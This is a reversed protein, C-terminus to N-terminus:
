THGGYCFYWIAFDAVCMDEMIPRTQVFPTWTSQLTVRHWTTQNEFQDYSMICGLYTARKQVPIQLDPCDPIQVTLTLVDKDMRLFQKRLQKSKTGHMTVLAISKRPNVHLGLDHLAKFLFGFFQLIRQFEAESHFIGCAHIDDAYINLCQCIWTLPFFQHLDHLCLAMMCNWLLPAAKCGQRLGKSTQVPFSEGGHTVHYRTDRHWEHLLHIINSHIGLEHLRAFLTLRDISDFAHELDIFLQVGGFFDESPRQQARSHPTSRSHLVLDRVLRCHQAAKTVSDQTTRHPIYAWLPWSILAPMAQTLAKRALIGVISKGIPEQLCLPRLNSPRVPAKRPKPILYLWGDKWCNPIIPPSCSWWQQLLHFLPQALSDSHVGWVLGPAYPLAVAKTSPIAAIADRLDSLAFPVGPGAPSPFITLPTGKWTEEVHSILIAREEHLTALTGQANRLQMRRTPVKPANKNIIKFLCHCDHRLSAQHAEHMIDQFRQERLLMAHKRQRRKLGHFRAVHFWAKLINITTPRTLSLFQTRHFWKNDYYPLSQQWPDPKSPTSTAPFAHKFHRIAAAHMNQIQSDASTSAETLPQVLDSASAQVFLKWTPSNGFKAARGQAKQRASIGTTVHKPPPMWYQAVHCVLGAHGHPTDPMFPANWIYRVQKSRGDSQSKRLCAFDIRSTFRPNVFTPGATADWTNAALLGHTRLITQFHAHDSHQTGRTLKGEWRYETTGCHSQCAPLGCNFDGILMLVNRQPLKHLASDLSSWWQLRRQLVTADRSWTHQYCGLIDVNRNSKMLRVHLLRGPVLEQWRIDDPKCISHSVLILIGAGRCTPDGSHVHSWGNDSWQNQFGWRTESIICIGIHQIELWAKLEDLTHSALGGGNWHFFTLRKRPIHQEHYKSVAKQSCPEPVWEIPKMGMQLFSSPTLTQGKYWTMGFIDARRQARRLSRKVVQSSQQYPQMGFVTGHCAPPQQGHPKTDGFFLPMSDVLPLVGADGMSSISGESRCAGAFQHNMMQYLVFGLILRYCPNRRSKPGSKCWDSIGCIAQRAKWFGWVHISHICVVIYSVTLGLQHRSKYWKCIGFIVTCWLILCHTETSLPRTSSSPRLSASVCCITHFLLTRGTHVTFQHFFQGLLRSITVFLVPLPSQSVIHHIQAGTWPRHLSWNLIRWGTTARAVLLGALSILSGIGWLGTVRPVALHSSYDQLFASFIDLQQTSFHLFTYGFHISFTHPALFPQVSSGVRTVAWFIAFISFIIATALLGPLSHLSGLGWHCAVTLIQLIPSVICFFSIWFIWTYVFRETIGTNSGDPPHDLGACAVVPLGTLFHQSGLGWIGTAGITWDIQPWIPRDSNDTRPLYVAGTHISGLHLPRFFWTTSDINWFASPGALFVLSGM